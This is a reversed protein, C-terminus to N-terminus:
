RVRRGKKLTLTKEHNLLWRKRWTGGAYGALGGDGAVVRHCPVFLPAKNKNLASGVARAARAHGIAKALEGYSVTHGPRVKQIRAWVKREFLTGQQTVSCSFGTRKGKFYADIERLCRTLPPAAAPAAPSRKGRFGVSLVANKVAHIELWGIPSKYYAKSVVQTM